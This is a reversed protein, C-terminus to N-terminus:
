FWFAIPILWILAAFLVCAFITYQIAREDEKMHCVIANIMFFPFALAALTLLVYLFEM